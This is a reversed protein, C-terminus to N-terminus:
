CKLCPMIKLANHANYREVRVHAILSHLYVMILRVNPTFWPTFFDIVWLAIAKLQQIRPKIGPLRFKSCISKVSVMNQKQRYVVVCVSVSTYEYVYRWIYGCVPVHCRLCLCLGEGMGLRQREPCVSASM